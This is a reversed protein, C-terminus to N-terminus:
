TLKELNRILEHPDAGLLECVELFEIVDLRREGREYKSVFSQPKSLRSSLMTQTLGAKKRADFLQTLLLQYSDSYISTM